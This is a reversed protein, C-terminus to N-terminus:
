NGGLMLAVDVFGAVLGGALFGITLFLSIKTIIDLNEM